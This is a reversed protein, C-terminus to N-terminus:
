RNQSSPPEVGADDIPVIGDLSAGRPPNAAAGDYKLDGALRKQEALRPASRADDDIAAGEYSESTTPPPPDWAKIADAPPAPQMQPAALIDAAPLAAAGRAPTEAPPVVIRAPGAAQSAGASRRPARSAAAPKAAPACVLALVVQVGIATLCALWFRPQGVVKYARTLWVGAMQKARSRRDAFDPSPGTRVASADRHESSVLNASATAVPSSLDPLRITIRQM